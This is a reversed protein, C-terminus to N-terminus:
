IHILSLNKYEDALEITGTDTITGGKLGDGATISKVANVPGLYKGTEDIVKTGNIYISKPNIDGIVDYAKAAYFSYPVAGIKQRPKGKNGSVSIELFLVKDVEFVPMIAGDNIEATYFGDVVAVDIAQEFLIDNGDPSGYIGITINIVGNYPTGDSNEMYGQHVIFGPVAYLNVTMLMLVTFFIKGKM